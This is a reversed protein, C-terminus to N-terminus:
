DSSKVESYIRDGDDNVEMAPAHLMQVRFVPQLMLFEICEVPNCYFFRTYDDNRLDDPSALRNHCVKGSEWSDISMVYSM